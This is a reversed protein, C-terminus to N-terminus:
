SRTGLEPYWSCETEPWGLDGVCHFLPTCGELDTCSEIYRTLQDRDETCCAGPRDFDDYATIETLIYPGNKDLIDRLDSPSPDQGGGTWDCERGDPRPDSRCPHFSIYDVLPRLASNYRLKGRRVSDNTGVLGDFNRRAIRLLEKMESESIDSHAKYENVVEIATHAYRNALASVVAVWDARNRKSPGGSKITCIPMVLVQAGPITATVDLFHELEVYAPATEDFPIVSVSRPLWPEDDDLPWLWVEACVRAWAGMGFSAQARAFKMRIQIETARAGAFLTFGIGAEFEFPLDVRLVPPISMTTTPEPATSTNDDASSCDDHCALLLALGVVCLAKISSM